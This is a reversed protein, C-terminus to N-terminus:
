RKGGGQARFWAKVRDRDDHPLGIVGYKVGDQQFAFLQGSCPATVEKGGSLLALVQGGEVWPRSELSKAGRLNKVEVRRVSEPLYIACTRSLRSLVRTEERGAKGKLACRAAVAISEMRTEDVGLLAAMEGVYGLADETMPGCLSAGILLDLLFMDALDGKLDKELRGFFGKDAKRSEKLLARLGKDVKTQDKIWQCFIFFPTKDGTVYPTMQLLATLYRGALVTGDSRCLPHGTFPFEKARRRIAAEDVMERDANREETLKQSLELVQKELARVSTLLADIERELQDNKM